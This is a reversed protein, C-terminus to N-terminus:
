CTQDPFTQYFSYPQYPDDLLHSYHQSPQYEERVIKNNRFEPDFKTLMKKDFTTRYSYGENFGRQPHAPHSFAKQAYSEVYHGYSPSAEFSEYLHPQRDGHKVYEPNHKEDMMRDMCSRDYISLESTTVGVHEPNWKAPSPVPRPTPCPVKSM